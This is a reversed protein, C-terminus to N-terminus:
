AKRSTQRNPTTPAPTAVDGAPTEQTGLADALRMRASGPQLPKQQTEAPAWGTLTVLEVTARIRGDPDTHRDAYVEMARALVARPLVGGRRERLANAAGASRVDRMLRLPNDYRVTLVDRDTVPLSFGARQLLSGLMRVDAFPAVRPSAGGLLEVEATLLADRLEKLTDGALVVGLFLGDPRLARRAQVLVGPLDNVGTLLPPMIFLDVSEPALPLAELDAVAAPCQGGTVLARAEDLGVVLDTGDREALIALVAGGAGGTGFVVVRPFARQVATLRLVVDDLAQATIFDDAALTGARITRRQRILARDFVQEVM